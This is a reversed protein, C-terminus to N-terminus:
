CLMWEIWNWQLNDVSHTSNHAQVLSRSLEVRAPSARVLSLCGTFPFRSEYECDHRHSHLRVRHLFASTQVAPTHALMTMVCVVLTHVSLMLQAQMWCYTWRMRRPATFRRRTVFQARTKRGFLLLWWKITSKKRWVIINYLHFVVAGRNVWQTVDRRAKEREVM